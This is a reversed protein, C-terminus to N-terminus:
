TLAGAEKKSGNQASSIGKDGPLSIVFTSGEGPKSRGSLSGGHRRIMEVCMVLGLGTGAERQTGKTSVTKEKSLIQDLTHQEVGVGNDSVTIETGSTSQEAEVTVEGGSDTFKVANSLLNRLVTQLMHKDAFVMIDDAINHSITINKSESLSQLLELTENVLDALRLTDPDFSMKGSQLTVWELLQTLLNVARNSSTVIQDIMGTKEEDSLEGFEDRLMSAYGVIGQFPSRLDHSIIKILREKTFNSEKLQREIKRRQAIEKELRDVTKTLHETRERVSNALDKNRKKLERSRWNIFGVVMFFLVVVYAAIMYNHMWWPPPIYFSLQLPETWDTSNRSARVEFTYWGSGYFSRSFVSQNTPESWSEGTEKLRTQYYIDESPYDYTTFAFTMHSVDHDLEREEATHFVDDHVRWYRLQVPSANTSFTGGNYYSVGVNTGMWLFDDQDLYAAGHSFSTSMLGNVTSFTRIVQQAPDCFDESYIWHLNQNTGVWTIEGSNKIWRTSEGAFTTCFHHEAVTDHPESHPATDLHYLGETSGLWLQNDVGPHIYTFYTDPDPEVYYDDWDISIFEENGPDFYALFRSTGSVWVTNDETLTIGSLSESIGDDPGFVRLSDHLSDYRYLLGSNDVMWYLNNDQLVALEVDMVPDLEAIISAELSHVNINHIINRSFVILNSNGPEYHLTKVFENELYDLQQLKEEVAERFYIGGHTAVWLNGLKDNVVDTVYRRPLGKEKGVNAFPFVPLMNIGHDTSVWINNSRDIHVHKIYNSFFDRTPKVAHSEKDMTFLGEGNGGIFLHDSNRPKVVDVDIGSSQEIWQSRIVKASEYDWDMKYIGDDSAVWFRQLGDEPIVGSIEIDLLSESLGTDPIKRVYDAGNEILLLGNATSPILINGKKDKYFTYSRVFNTQFEPEFDFSLPEISHDENIRYIRNQGAMLITGDNIEILRRIRKDNDDPDFPLTTFSYPIPKDDDLKAFAPGSDTAVWLTNDSSVLTQKVYRDPLGHPISRNHFEYGDYFSLGDDTAIALAGSPLESIQKIFSSPLGDDTTLELHYDFASLPSSGYAMIIILWM